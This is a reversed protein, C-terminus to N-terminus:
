LLKVTFVHTVRFGAHYIIFTKQVVVSVPVAFIILFPFLQPFALPPVQPVAAVASAVHVIHTHKPQAAPPLPVAHAPPPPPAHVDTM